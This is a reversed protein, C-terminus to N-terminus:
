IVQKQRTNTAQVESKWPQEITSDVMPVRGSVKNALNQGMAFTVILVLTGLMLSWLQGINLINGKVGTPTTFDTLKLGNVM